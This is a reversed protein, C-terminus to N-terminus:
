RRDDRNAGGRHSGRGVRQNMKSPPKNQEGSYRDGPKNQSNMNNMMQNHPQGSIMQRNLNPNSGNNTGNNTNNGLPIGSNQMLNVNSLAPNPESMNLSENFVMCFEGIKQIDGNKGSYLTLCQRWVSAYGKTLRVIDGPVLLQGPEDWVSVNVCATQDAVKFTRVERNEKTITPAGVELVIFVVNLNKLGPRLDKIQIFEMQAMKITAATFVLYFRQVTSEQNIFCLNPTSSHYIENFLWSVTALLGNSLHLSLFTVSSHIANECNTARCDTCLYNGYQTRLM